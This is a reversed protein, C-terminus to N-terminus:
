LTKELTEPLSRPRDSGELLQSRVKLSNKIFKEIKELKKSCTKLRGLGIKERTGPGAFFHGSIDYKGSNRSHIKAPYRVIYLSAVRICWIECQIISGSRCSLDGLNELKPRPEKIKKGSIKRTNKEINIFLLRFLYRIKMEDISGAM